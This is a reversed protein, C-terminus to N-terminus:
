SNSVFYLGIVVLSIGVSKWANIHEGLLIVGGAYVLVFTLATFAYVTVMQEKSLAYIWAVTGAAYFVLGGITYPNIFAVLDIRDRAGVRFLLQGIAASTCAGLLLFFM